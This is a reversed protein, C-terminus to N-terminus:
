IAFTVDLQEEKLYEWWNKHLKWCRQMISKAMYASKVGSNALTMAREMYVSRLYLCSNDFLDCGCCFLCFIICAATSSKPPIYRILLNTIEEILKKVEYHSSPYGFVRRKLQLSGTLGYIVNTARLLEYTQYKETIITNNHNNHGAGNNIQYHQRCIKDRVRESIYLYQILEQDLIRAKMKVEQDIHNQNIFTSIKGLYLLVKPDLGTCYEIDDLHYRKTYLFDEDTEYKQVEYSLHRFTDFQFDMSNQNISSLSSIIAVYTFWRNLFFTPDMENYFLEVRFSDVDLMKIKENILTRAGFLHKRWVRRNDSFFIDFMSLMLVTALTEDRTRQVINDLSISLNKLTTALLDDAIAPPKKSSWIDDLYYCSKELSQDDMEILNITKLNASSVSIHSKSPPPLLLTSPENLFNGKHTAGFALLLCLLTENQMAMQPLLLKFPNKLCTKPSTPILMHSTKQLYFEFFNMNYHSSTLLSPLLSPSRVLFIELPKIICSLLKTDDISNSIDKSFKKYVKSNNKNLIFVGNKLKLQPTLQSSMKHSNKYPRGGWKLIISYDCDKIDRRCCNNCRPKNEDCKIKWRKCQRCGNRSRISGM